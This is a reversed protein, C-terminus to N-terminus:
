VMSTYFALSFPFSFFNSAVAPVACQPILTIGVILRLGPMIQVALVIGSMYHKLNTGAIIQSIFHIELIIELYQESYSHSSAGM